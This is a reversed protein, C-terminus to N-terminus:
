GIEGRNFRVQAWAARADGAAAAAEAERAETLRMYREAEERAARLEKTLQAMELSM